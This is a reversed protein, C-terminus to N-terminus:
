RQNEDLETDKKKVGMWITIRGKITMLIKSRWKITMWIRITMKMNMGIQIMGEISTRGNTRRAMKLWVFVLM